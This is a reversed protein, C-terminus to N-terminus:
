SDDVLGVQSSGDEVIGVGMCALTLAQADLVDLPRMALEARMDGRSDGIALHDQIVQITGADFEDSQVLMCTLHVLKGEVRMRAVQQKRGTMIGGNSEPIQSVHASIDCGTLTPILVSADAAADTIDLPGWSVGYFKSKASVITGDLAPVKAVVFTGLLLDWCVVLLSASRNVPVWIALM